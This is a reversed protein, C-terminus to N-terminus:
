YPSLNLLWGASFTTICGKREDGDNARKQIRRRIGRASEDDRPGDPTVGGKSRDGGHTIDGTDCAIKEGAKPRGPSHLRIGRAAHGDRSLDHTDCM